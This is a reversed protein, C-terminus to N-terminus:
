RLYLWILDTGRQSSFDATHVIDVLTMLFIRASETGSALPFDM